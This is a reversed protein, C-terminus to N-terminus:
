FKRNISNTKRRMSLSPKKSKVLMVCSTLRSKNSAWSISKKATVTSSARSESRVFWEQISKKRMRVTTKKARKVVIKWVTSTQQRSTMLSRKNSVPRRWWRQTTLKPSTSRPTTNPITTTTPVVTESNISTKILSTKLANNRM